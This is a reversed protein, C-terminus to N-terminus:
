FFYCFFVFLCVFFVGQTGSLVAINQPNNIFPMCFTRCMQLSRIKLITLSTIQCLSKGFLYNQIRSRSYKEERRESNRKRVLLINWLYNGPTFNPSFMQQEWYHANSSKKLCGLVSVRIFAGALLQCLFTLSSFCFNRHEVSITWLNM